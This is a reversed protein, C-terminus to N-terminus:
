MWTPLAAAPADMGGATPGTPAAVAGFLGSVDPSGEGFAEGDRLFQVAILKARIARGHKNDQAWPNVAVNVYCGGYLKRALAQSAMTNAPDVPKGNPDIMQPQQDNNASVYFGNEYGLYPKFTKKDIRENGNGYCRLKRDGQILNLVAQAHEKWKEQATVAVAQMFAKMQEASMIFDASYKLPGGEASSKAEILSPFSLRVNSLYVIESM